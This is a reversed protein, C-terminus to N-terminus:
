ASLSTGGSLSLDEFLLMEKKATVTGGGSVSGQLVLMGDSAVSGKVVTSGLLQIGGDEQVGDEDYYEAATLSGTEAVTLNYMVAWERVALSGSIEVHSEPSDGTYVRNATANGKIRITGGASRKDGRIQLWDVAGTGDLILTHDGADISGMADNSNTRYAYFHPLSGCHRSYQDQGKCTDPNLLTDEKLAVFTLGFDNSKDELWPYEAYLSAEATLAGGSAAMILGAACAHRLIGRYASLLHAIVGRTQRIAKRM